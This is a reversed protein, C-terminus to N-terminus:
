VREAFRQMKFETPLFCRFSQSDCCKFVKAVVTLSVLVYLRLPATVLSNHLQTRLSKSARPTGM